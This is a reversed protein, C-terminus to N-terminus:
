DDAATMAYIERGMGMSEEIAAQWAPREGTRGRNIRTPFKRRHEDLARSFVEALKASRIAPTSFQPNEGITRKALALQRELFDWFETKQCEGARCAADFDDISLVNWAWRARHADSIVAQKPAIKFITQNIDLGKKYAKYIRDKIQSRLTTLRIRILQAFTEWQDNNDIIEPPIKWADPHALMDVQSPKTLVYEQLPTVYFFTHPAMIVIKLCNVVHTLFVRSHVFDHAATNAGSHVHLAATIVAYLEVERYTPDLRAYRRVDDRTTGDIGHHDMCSEAFELLMRTEESDPNAYIGDADEVNANHAPANGGDNQEVSEPHPSPPSDNMVLNLFGTPKSMPMPLPFSLPTASQAPAVLEPIASSSPEPACNQVTGDNMKRKKSNSPGAHMYQDNYAETGGTSSQTPRRIPKNRRQNPQTLPPCPDKTAQVEAPAVEKGKSRLFAVAATRINTYESPSQLPTIHDFRSNVLQHIQKCNHLSFTNVVYESNDVHQIAPRNLGTDQREQRIVQSASDTCGSKACRHQLNVECVIDVIAVAVFTDELHVVPMHTTSDLEVWAYTHLVVFLRQPTAESSHMILDRVCGLQSNVSNGTHYIVNTGPAIRDGGPITAGGVRQFSTDGTLFSNPCVIGPPALDLWTGSLPNSCALQVGTTNNSAKIGLLRQTFTRKSNSDFWYGGSIIHKVRDFTAFANAIDRSPAQRNSHVSVSRFVSNFSEYRESNPGLLPGFRRVFLPMHVLLHIKAKQVVLAPVSKAVTYLFDNITAKFEVAYEDINDIVPYWALVTLRGLAVWADLVNNDVLNHLCFCATQLLVKFHKGNLSGRNSLIYGPIPGTNLGSVSVSRLRTSFLAFNNGKDMQRVSEAWLYKATGLLITHLTETPTDLHVNFGRLSLLPNMRLTSYQSYYETELQQSIVSMTLSTTKQLEQRKKIIKELYPQAISDKIGSDRQEDQLKQASKSTFAIRYQGKIRERTIEPTRYTKEELQGLFGDDSAKFVKSGGVMCTHCFMNSQLGITSCEEAQMPNDGSIVHIYPQVLVECGEMEDWVIIPDKFLGDFVECIGGLMEIPSVHQSTSMFRINFRENLKERPLSTNGSVDDLFLIYPVSYVKRGQAKDRLPHPTLMGLSCKEDLVEIGNPTISKLDLCNLRLSGVPVTTLANDLRYTCHGLEETVIVIRNGRASLEGEYKLFMKPLFYSGDELLALENVFFSRGENSVMPTLQDMNEGCVMKDGHWIESRHQGHEHPYLELHRRVGPNSFDQLETTLFQVIERAPEDDLTSKIREECKDLQHLTPVDVTGMEIAWDLIAVKQADSFRIAPANFLSHTLFLQKSVYPHWSTDDYPNAERTNRANTAQPYGTSPASASRSSSMYENTPFSSALTNLDASTDYANDQFFDYSPISSAHGWEGSPLLIPPPALPEIDTSRAAPPQSASTAAPQSSSQEQDKLESSKNDASRSHTAAQEIRRQHQGGRRIVHEAMRSASMPQLPQGDAGLCVTCRFLQGTRVIRETSFARPKSPPPM